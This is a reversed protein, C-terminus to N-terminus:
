HQAVTSLHAREQIKEQLWSQVLQQPTVKDHRAIKQIQRGLQKKVSIREIPQNKTNLYYNTFRACCHIQGAQCIFKGNFSQWAV